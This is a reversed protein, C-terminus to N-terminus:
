ATTKRKSLFLEETTELLFDILGHDSAKFSM